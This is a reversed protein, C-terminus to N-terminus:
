RSIKNPYQANLKNYFTEDTSIPNNSYKIQQIVSKNLYLLQNASNLKNSSVDIKSLNKLKSLDPLASIGCNSLKLEKLQTNASIKDFGTFTVNAGTLGLISFYEVFKGNFIPAANISFSGTFDPSVQYFFIEIKKLNPMQSLVAFSKILGKYTKGPVTKNVYSYGVTSVITQNTELKFYISISDFKNDVWDGVTINGSAKPIYMYERIISELVPDDFSLVEDRNYTPGSSVVVAKSSSVNSPATNEEFNPAVYTYQSATQTITSTGGETGSGTSSDSSTSNSTPYYMKDAGMQCGTFLLTVIFILIIFKKM